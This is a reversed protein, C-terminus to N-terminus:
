NTMERERQRVDKVWHSIDQTDNINCNKGNDKAEPAM